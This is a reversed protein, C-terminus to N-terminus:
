DDNLREEPTKYRVGRWGRGGGDVSNSLSAGFARKFVEVSRKNFDERSWAARKTEQLHSSFMAFFEGRNIQGGREITVVSEAYSALPCSRRLIEDVVERMAAPAEPRKGEIRMAIRRMAGEILRNLLKSGEERLILAGFNQIRAKPEYPHFRWPRLRREWADVDDEIDVKPTSNVALLFVKDGRIPTLLSAHPARDERYDGGTLAKVLEGTDGGLAGGKADTFSVIRSLSLFSAGFKGGVDRSSQACWYARGVLARLIEVVQSKGADAAGILAFVMPALAAGGLWAASFDDLFEEALEESGLSPALLDDILRSPRAGCPPDYMVRARHLARDSACFGKRFHYNDKSLLDFTLLGNALPLKCEEPVFDPDGGFPFNVGVQAAFAERTGRMLRVSPPRLGLPSLLKPSFGPLQVYAEALTREVESKTVPLHVGSVSHYSYFQSAIRDFILSGRLFLALIAALAFENIGGVVEDGQGDRGERTNSLKGAQVIIASIRTDIAQQDLKAMDLGVDEALSDPTIIPSKVM